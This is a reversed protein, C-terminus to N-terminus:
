CSCKPVLLGKLLLYQKVQIDWLNIPKGINNTSACLSNCPETRTASHQTSLVVGNNFSDGKVQKHILADATHIACLEFELSLTISMKNMSM